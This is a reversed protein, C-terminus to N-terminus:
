KKMMQRYSWKGKLALRTLATVAHWASRDRVPSWPKLDSSPYPFCLNHDSIPNPYWSAHRVGGGMKGSTGGGGSTKRRIKHVFPPGTQWANRASVMSVPVLFRQTIPAVSEIAQFCQNGQFLHVSSLHWLFIPIKLVLYVITPHQLSENYAFPDQSSCAIYKRRHNIHRAM